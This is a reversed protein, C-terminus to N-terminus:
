RDEWEMSAYDGDREQPYNREECLCLWLNDTLDDIIRYDPEVGMLVCAQFYAKWCAEAESLEGGDKASEAFRRGCNFATEWLKNFDHAVIGKTSQM